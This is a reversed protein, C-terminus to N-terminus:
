IEEILEGSNRMIFEKYKKFLKPYERYLDNYDCYEILEEVRKINKFTEGYYDLYPLHLYRALELTRWDHTLWLSPIKNRLAMMNGHLRSGFAFTYKQEQIYKDWQYFDFFIPDEEKGDSYEQRILEANENKIM